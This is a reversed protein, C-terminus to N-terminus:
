ISHVTNRNTLKQQLIFLKVEAFTTFVAAVRNQVGSCGRRECRQPKLFLNISASERITHEKMSYPKHIKVVNSNLVAHMTHSKYYPSHTYHKDSILIWIIWTFRRRLCFYLNEWEHSTRRLNPFQRDVPVCSNLSPLMPANQAPPSHFYSSHSNPWNVIDLTLEQYWLSKNFMVSVIWGM